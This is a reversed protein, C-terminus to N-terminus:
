AAPGLLAWGSQWPWENAANLSINLFAMEELARAMRLGGADIPRFGLSALLDAVVKKADADDGAYFGDLRAGDEQPSGLRGAFVTNFAKVVASDPLLRRLTQVAATEEIDLDTFSANLPNTADVVVKGRVAPALEKAVAAVVDGPVALVVVDAGTVADVNNEAARAGTEAAVDAAKAQSTAAVTVTHGAGTAARSLASGVNGAGSIAIRM